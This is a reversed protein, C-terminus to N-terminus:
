LPSAAGDVRGPVRRTRPTRRWGRAASARRGRPPTRATRRDRQWPRRTSSPTPASPGTASSPCGPRSGTDPRGTRMAVTRRGVSESRCAIQRRRRFPPRRGARRKGWLQGRSDARQRRLLTHHQHQHVREAPGLTVDGTEQLDVWRRDFLMEVAGEGPQAVIQLYATDASCSFVRSEARRRRPVRMSASALATM